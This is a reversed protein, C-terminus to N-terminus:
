SAGSTSEFTFTRGGLRVRTGPLLRRAQGPPLQSWSPDGPAALFTGNRSGADLLVVDWDEVRVEAHVRSVAGSRDEVVISRLEGSRVREDSEPMRGALYGGDVTYAAGDDFVLLGLPPRTGIVLVGTRENMRVGCLVCARSRPDNLHGNSCLHGRAEGPGPGTPTAASPGGSASRTGTGGPDGAELPPRPPGDPPVGHIADSRRPPTRPGPAPPQGAGPREGVAPLQGTGPVVPPPAPAPGPKGLAVAAAPAAEPPAPATGAARGTEMGVLTPQANISGPPATAAAAPASVPPAVTPAGVLEIGGGGVVGERLDHLGALPAPPAAPGDLALRVPGPAVLRDTWAAADAGSLVAGGVRAGVPGTLFVATAEGAACVTGFVLADPPADPGGLWSALRRALPRGPEAGAVERCLDLLRALPAPDPCRAVCLIGPFRAVVGDGPLVVARPAGGDM